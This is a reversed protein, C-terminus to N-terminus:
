KLIKKLRIENGADNYEVHDFIKHILFVGRGRPQLLLEPNSRPDPVSRWDFGKGQDTIICTFTGQEVEAKLSIMKGAKRAIESRKALENEFEGAEQLETKEKATVGLNGHEYANRLAEDLAVQFQRLERDVLFGSMLQMVMNLAPAIADSASELTLHVKAASLSSSTFHPNKRIKLRESCRQLVEDISELSFPKRVFDSAGALLAEAMVAEDTQDAVVVCYAKPYDRSLSRVLDIGSMDPLMIDVFVLQAQKDRMTRIGDHASPVERIAVTKERLFKSLTERFPADDDVVLIDIPNDM